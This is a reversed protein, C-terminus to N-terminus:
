FRSADAMHSGFLEPHAVAIVMLFVFLTLLGIVTTLGILGSMLDEAIGFKKGIIFATKPSPVGAILVVSVTAVLGLDFLLAAGYAVAPCVLMKYMCMVCLTRWEARIANWSFEMGVAFLAVPTLSIALTRFYHSLVNPLPLGSASYLIGLIAALVLPNTLFVKVNQRILAVGSVGVEADRKTVLFMLLPFFVMVVVFLSAVSLILGPRGLLAFLIPLGIFASNGVSVAYATLARYPLERQPGIRAAFVWWCGFCLGISVLTAGIFDWHFVQSFPETALGSFILAPGAVKYVFDVLADGYNGSVWRFRTAVHGSLMIAFIPVLVNVVIVM